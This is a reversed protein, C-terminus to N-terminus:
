ERTVGFVRASRRKNERRELFWGLVVVAQQGGRLHGLELEVGVPHDEGGAVGWQRHALRPPATLM